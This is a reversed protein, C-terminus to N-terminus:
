YVATPCLVSPFIYYGYMEQMLRDPSMEPWRRAVEADHLSLYSLKQQCDWWLLKRMQATCIRCNGDYIVVEADPRDAPCPLVPPAAPM